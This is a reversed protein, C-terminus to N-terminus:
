ESNKDDTAARFDAFVGLLLFIILFIANTNFKKDLYGGIM